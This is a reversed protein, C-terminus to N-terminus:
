RKKLVEYINHESMFGLERLRGKGVKFSVLIEGSKTGNALKDRLLNAKWQQISEVKTKVNKMGSYEGATMAIVEHSTTANMGGFMYVDLHVRDMTHASLHLEDVLRLKM